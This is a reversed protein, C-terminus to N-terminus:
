CTVGSCRSNRWSTFHGNREAVHRLGCITPCSGARAEPTGAIPLGLALPWTGRGALGNRRARMVTDPGDGEAIWIKTLMLDRTTRSTTYRHNADARNTFVRHVPM